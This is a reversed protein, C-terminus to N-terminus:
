GESIIIYWGGNALSHQSCIFFSCNLDNQEDHVAFCLAWLIQKTKSDPQLNTPLVNVTQCFINHWFTFAKHDIHQSGYIEGPFEEPASCRRGELSQGMSHQWGNFSSRIMLRCVLKESFSKLLYNSWCINPKLNTVGEFFVWSLSIGVAPNLQRTTVILLTLILKIAERKGVFSYVAMRTAMATANFHKPEFKLRKKLYWDRSCISMDKQQRWKNHSPQVM